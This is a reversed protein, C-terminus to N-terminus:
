RGKWAKGDSVSPGGALRGGHLTPGRRSVMGYVESIMGLQDPVCALRLVRDGILMGFEDWTEIDM